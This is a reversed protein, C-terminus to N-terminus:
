PSLNFKVRVYPIFCHIHQLNSLFTLTHKLLIKSSGKIKFKFKILGKLNPKISMHMIKIKLSFM